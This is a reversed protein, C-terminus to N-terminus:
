FNEDIDWNRALNFVEFDGDLVEPKDPAVLIEPRLAVCDRPSCEIRGESGCSCEVCNGTSHPLTEGQRYERGMVLCITPASPTTSSLTANIEKHEEQNISSDFNGSAEFGDVIDTSMGLSSTYNSEVATSRLSSPDLSSAMNSNYNQWWCYVEGVVCLCHSNADRSPITQSHSYFNGDVICKKLFPDETTVDDDSDDRFTVGIEDLLAQGTARAPAAISRAVHCHLLYGVVLLMRPLWM